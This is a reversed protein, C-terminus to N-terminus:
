NQPNYTLNLARPTAVIDFTSVPAGTTVEVQESNLLISVQYTRRGNVLTEDVLFQSVGFEAIQWPDNGSKRLLNTAQLSWQIPPALKVVLSGIPFTHSRESDTSFYSGWAAQSATVGTLNLVPENTTQDVTTDRVRFLATTSSNFDVLMVIDNNQFSGRRPSLINVGQDPGSLSSSVVDHTTVLVPDTNSDGALITLENRAANSSVAGALRNSSGLRFPMPPILTTVSQVDILPAGTLTVGSVRSNSSLTIEPAIPYTLTSASASYLLHSTNSRILYFSVCLGTPCREIAVQYNDGAEPAFGATGSNALTSSGFTASWVSPTVNISYAASGVPLSLTFSGIGPYTAAVAGSGAGLARAAQARAQSTLATLTDGSQSFTSNPIFLLTETGAGPEKLKTLAHGAMDLDSRLLTSLGGRRADLRATEMFTAESRVTAIGFIVATGIVVVLLVMSVLLEVLTFGGQQRTTSNTIQNSITM